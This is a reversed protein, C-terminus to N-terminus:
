LQISGGREHTSSAEDNVLEDFSSNIMKNNRDEAALLSQQKDRIKMTFIHFIYKWILFNGFGIFSLLIHHLVVLAIPPHGDLIGWFRNITPFLYVAFFLVSFAFLQNELPGTRADGPPLLGCRRCTIWCFVYASTTIYLVLPVYLTMQFSQDTIWCEYADMGYQKEPNDTPGYHGLPTLTCICAVLWVIVHNHKIKLNRVVCLTKAKLDKDRVGNMLRFLNIVIFFSWTASSILSLQFIFGLIPCLYPHNIWKYDHGFAISFWYLATLVHTLVDWASLYLVYDNVLFDRNDPDLRKKQIVATVLYSAGFISLLSLFFTVIGTIRYVDYTSM